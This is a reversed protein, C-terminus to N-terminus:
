LAMSAHPELLWVFSVAFLCQHSHDGMRVVQCFAVFVSLAGGRDRVLEKLQILETYGGM